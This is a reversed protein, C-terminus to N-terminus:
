RDFYFRNKVFEAPKHTIDLYFKESHTKISERIIANSVVDRPARECRSDYDSAFRRGECNLLVAGEGRVAESILFRERDKEAAFATPHFQQRKYVDLHTYSVPALCIYNYEYLTKSNIKTFCM